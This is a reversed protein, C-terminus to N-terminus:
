SFSKVWFSCVLSLFTVPKMFLNIQCVISDKPEKLKKTFCPISSRFVFLSTLKIRFGNKLFFFSFIVFLIAVCCNLFSSSIDRILLYNSYKSFWPFALFLSFM